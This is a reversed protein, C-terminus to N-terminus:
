RCTCQEITCTSVAPGPLEFYYSAGLGPAEDESEKAVQANRYLPRLPPERPPLRMNNKAGPGEKEFHVNEAIYMNM